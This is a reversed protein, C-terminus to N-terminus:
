HPHLIVDALGIQNRTDLTLSSSGFPAERGESRRLTGHRFPLWCKFRCMM